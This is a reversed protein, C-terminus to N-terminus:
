QLGAGALNLHQWKDFAEIMVWGAIARTNWTPMLLSLRTDWLTESASQNSRARVAVYVAFCQLWELINTVSPKKTQAMSEKDYYYTGLREPLLDVIEIFAGSEIRTVLKALVPPFEAGLLKSYSSAPPTTNDTASRNTPSTICNSLTYNYLADGCSATTYASFGYCTIRSNKLWVFWVNMRLGDYCSLLWTFTFM